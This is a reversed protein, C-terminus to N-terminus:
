QIVIKKSIIGQENELHVFYMGPTLQNTPIVEQSNGNTFHHQSKSWVLQGTFNFIKIAADFPATAQVALAFGASLKVPNPIVQWSNVTQISPTATNLGTKFQEIDSPFGCFSVENYAYVRWYYRRNPNLVDDLLFSNTNAIFQLSNASFARVNDIEVVYYTANPVAEWSLAVKNYSDTVVRDIPATLSAFTSVAAATSTFGRRISRRNASQLDAQMLEIQEPTFNDLCNDAFYGMILAPDPMLAEGKPDLMTGTYECGNFNLKELYLYDAPTDCVMDGAIACNSGDAYENLVGGSSREPAPQGAYTDSYPEAGNEGWGNFTHLLSFYHGIEHPLTYGRKNIHINRIVLWDEFPTYYGFTQGVSNDLQAEGLLWVNLARNEKERGMAMSARTSFHDEYIATSNIENFGEFVYFQMETDAFIENLLCLQDLVRTYSIRESGDDKGVLHFKLPVYTTANRSTAIDANSKLFAKNKLLRQRIIEFGETSTGCHNATQAIGLPIQCLFLLTVIILRNRLM